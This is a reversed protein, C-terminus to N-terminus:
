EFEFEYFICIIVKEYTSHKRAGADFFVLKVECKAPYGEMELIGAPYRIEDCAPYDPWDPYGIFETAHM